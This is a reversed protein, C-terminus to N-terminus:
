LRSSPVRCSLSECFKRWGKRKEKRLIKTTLACQKKYELHSEWTLTKKYTETASKRAIVAEQCVDNWWPPQSNSGTMIRSSPAKAKDPAVASIGSNM